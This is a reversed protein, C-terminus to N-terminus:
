KDAEKAQAWLEDLVSLPATKMDIGKEAALAETITYRKM